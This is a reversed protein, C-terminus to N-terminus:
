DEKAFRIPLVMRVPVSTGNQMGAIWNPMMSIVRKAENDCDRSIGRMVEVNTVKGDPDIVFRVYVTGGTELFRFSSPIRIKKKIFKMMAEYGGVYEPMVEAFDRIVPPVIVAPEVVPETITGDVFGDVAVGVGTEDSTSSVGLVPEVSTETPDTTVVIQSSSATTHPQETRQPRPQERPPIIPPPTLIIGKEKKGTFPKIIDAADALSRDSLYLLAAFLMVTVGWGLIVRNSYDRRLVYAGYAKNRNEFVVDEWHRLVLTKTKM